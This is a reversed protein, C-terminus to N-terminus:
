REEKFHPVVTCECNPHYPPREDTLSHPNNAEEAACIDCPSGGTVVDFEEVGAERYREIAGTNFARNTETRAIVRGRKETVKDISESMLKAMEHPHAGRLMGDSLIRMVDTKMQESAQSVLRLNDRMLIELIFPDALQLKKERVQIEAMNRGGNYARTIITKINRFIPTLILETTWGDMAAKARNVDQMAPIKTIVEMKFTKFARVIAREYESILVRTRPGAM